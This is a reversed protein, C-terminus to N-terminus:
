SSGRGVRACWDDDDAAAVRAIASRNRIRRGNGVTHVAHTRWHQTIAQQFAKKEKKRNWKIVQSTKNRAAMLPEVIWFITSAFRIAVSGSPWCTLYLRGYNSFTEYLCCSFLCESEMESLFSICAMIREGERVSAMEIADVKQKSPRVAGGVPTPNPTVPKTAAM